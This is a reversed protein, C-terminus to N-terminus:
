TELMVAVSYWNVGLIANSQSENWWSYTVGVPLTGRVSFHM